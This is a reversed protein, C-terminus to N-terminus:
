GPADHTDRTYSDETVRTMSNTCSETDVSNVVRTSRMGECHWSCDGLGAIYEADAKFCGVWEERSTVGEYSNDCTLMTEDAGMCGDLNLKM